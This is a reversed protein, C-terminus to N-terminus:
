RDKWIPERKELFAQLGEKADETKMLQELYLKEMEELKATWDSEGMLAARKAIRLSSGSLMALQDLQETTADDFEAAPVASHVLGIRQATEADIQDGLQLLKTAWRSGVLSPLRLAAVPAIAGLRIEPQGIRAGEAMVAFDCCIVLECGGGLAHGRVIAVTPTPFTYLKACVRDFLPIMEGVRERTHDAVDVGACFIKGEAGLALVKIADDQAALDINQEMEKLMEINLVNAPPRNLTLNGIGGETSYSIFQTAQDTV